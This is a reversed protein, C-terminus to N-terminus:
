PPPAAPPEVVAGFPDDPLEPGDVDTWPPPALVTGFPDELRVLPLPVPLAEDVVEEPVAPLLPLVLLLVAGPVDVVWGPLEPDDVEALLTPLPLVLPWVEDLPPLLLLKPELVDVALEEDAENVDVFAPLEVLVVVVETRPPPALPVLTELVEVEPALVPEDTVEGVEDPLLLEDVGEDEPLVAEDGPLVVDDAPLVAELPLLEELPLVDEPVEDVVELPPLLELVCLVEELPLLLEDVVDDLPLLLLEVVAEVPLLVEDVVEEAPLLLLEVVDDLPLLLEVDEELLADLVDAVVLPEDLLETPEEDLLVDLVEDLIEIDLADLWALLEEEFVEVVDLM